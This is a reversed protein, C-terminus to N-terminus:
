RALVEIRLNVDPRIKKNSLSSVSKASITRWKRQTLPLAENHAVNVSALGAEPDSCGGSIELHSLLLCLIVDSFLEIKAIRIALDV